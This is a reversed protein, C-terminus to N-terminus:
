RGNEYGYDSMENYTRALDKDEVVSLSIANINERLTPILATAALVFSLIANM